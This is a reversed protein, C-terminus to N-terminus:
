STERAVEPEDLMLARAGEAFGALAAAAAQQRVAQADDRNELAIAAVMAMQRAAEVGANFATRERPTM